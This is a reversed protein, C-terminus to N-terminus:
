WQAQIAMNGYANAPITLTTSSFNATGGSPQTTVTWNSFPKRSTQSAPAESGGDTNYSVTYTTNYTPAIFIKTQAVGSIQYTQGGVTSGGASDVAINYTV